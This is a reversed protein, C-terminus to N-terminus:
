VILIKNTTAKGAYHGGCLGEHFEELLKKGDAQSVVKRFIGDGGQFYLHNGIVTYPRSRHAISQKRKKDAGSPFKCKTLYDWIEKFGELIVDVAMLNADRFDDDESKDGVDDYARSLADANIHKSGPRDMVEFEYEQLLIIWRAIRGTPNPKNFIFRLARHDIVVIFKNGLLYHRFKKVVFIISLKGKLLLTTEREQYSNNAQLIFPIIMGKNM